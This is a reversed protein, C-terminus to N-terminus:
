SIILKCNEVYSSVLDGFHNMALSYGFIHSNDNHVDIFKKNSVWVKHRDLDELDSGYTKQHQNKWLNWEEVHEYHPMSSCLGLGLVSLLVVSTLM